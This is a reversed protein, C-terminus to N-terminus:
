KIGNMTCFERQFLFIRQGDFANIQFKKSTLSIQYLCKKKNIQKCGTMLRLYLDIKM